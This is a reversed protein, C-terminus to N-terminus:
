GQDRAKAEAVKRYWTAREEPTLAIGSGFVYGTIWFFLVDFTWSPAVVLVGFTTIFFASVGLRAFLRLRRGLRHNVFPLYTLSAVSTGVAILVGCWAGGPVLPWLKSNCYGLVLFGTVTRNLGGWIGAMEVPRVLNRAHRITGTAIMLACMAGAVLQSQGGGLGLDADKQTVYFLVAPAICHCLHDTVADYEGGFRNSTGLKRAVLGDLVDGIYGILIAVGAAVPRPNEGLCLLLAVVGGLLNFTTFLDKIGFMRRPAVTAM